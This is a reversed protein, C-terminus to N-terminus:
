MEERRGEPVQKITRYKKGRQVKESREVSKGVAEM